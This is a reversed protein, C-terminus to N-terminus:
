DNQQTGKPITPNGLTFVVTEFTVGGARSEDLDIVQVYSNTFSAVYAFRYTRLQLPYPADPADPHRPDGPVPKGLAMDEVRFPDFTLAFPGDGVSIQDIIHTRPNYVFIENSDFAVVFIRSEYNGLKNVIPAVYVRSVGALLPLTQFVAIADADYSDEDPDPNVFGVDGLVLSPGSRSGLYLSAPQQACARSQALPWPYKAECSIRVSPDIALGRWDTGPSNVSLSVAEESVLYPRHLSSGDDPYYRLVNLQATTNNTEIFAPLPAEPCPSGPACGFALNDQPIAAIGDGGLPIALAGTQSVIFQMSPSGVPTTPVGAPDLGTLFLSTEQETEHTIVLATGDATQAMAFPEGPMTVNRTNGPEKPDVGAHHAADCSGQIRVGCNIAFPPYTARTANAPPAIAPDDVAIDGWTLSADGRVPVYFRGGSPSLQIDTAFAGIIASDRVYVYSNVPPACTQGIPVTGSGDKWVVIPNSPCQGAIPGPQHTYNRAVSPATPGEVALLAADARIQNLDYSQITGGNWQLDFDSNVVYLVNGGKSVALGVPFYFTEPPPATGDGTSYCSAVVPAAALLTAVVAARRRAPPELLWYM